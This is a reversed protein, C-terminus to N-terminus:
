LVHVFVFLAPQVLSWNQSDSSSGGVVSSLASIQDTEDTLACLGLHNDEVVIALTVVRRRSSADQAQEVLLKALSLSGGEAGGM